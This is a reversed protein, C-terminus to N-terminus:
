TALEEVPSYSGISNGVGLMRKETRSLYLEGVAGNGVTWSQSYGLASASGQTAGLPIGIETQRGLARVVVSCSVVLKVEDSASPAVSDILVAVDDLLSECIVIQADTLTKTTRAQVDNVTAYAM